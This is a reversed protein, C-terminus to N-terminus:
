KLFLFRGLLASKRASKFDVRQQTMKVSLNIFLEDLHASKLDQKRPKTHQDM